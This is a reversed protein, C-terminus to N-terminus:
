LLIMTQIISIFNYCEDHLKKPQLPKLTLVTEIAAQANSTNKLNHM